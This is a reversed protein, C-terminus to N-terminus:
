QFLDAAIGDAFFKGKETLRINNGSIVLNGNEEWRKASSIIKNKTRGDIVKWRGDNFDIGEMTRLGTMIFEDLKQTETLEEEEFYILNKEVANIYLANNAINWRRFSGNYSHAAPGVGLYNKGNWYSSNHKSRFGPQAFNSIEYHDFGKDTLRKVLMEFHRAQKDADVNEKKHREIMLALATKDEVTLAYCSLHPINFSLAMDINKLWQEDTLTPSGYILDITINNFYQTALQLAKLAQHSNHARNMWKLDEDFFSQIGISLRNIGVTKWELLMKEDIDDPNAELTIEAKEDITFNKELNDIILQLSDIAILSPTGGGFYITEVAEQLYNKRRELELGIAAVMQLMQKHSTSFHFNCYYCAQKCFPIHIYIGAM